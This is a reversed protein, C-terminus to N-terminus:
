RKVSVPPAMRVPLSVTFATREYPKSVVSIRGGHKDVFAKAIALGLGSGGYQLSRSQESRYTREFIRPIENAPIGPGADWITLEISTEKRELEVGLKRGDKGYRIANKILNNLIRIYGYRDVEAICKEDPIQVALDMGHKKLEPLFSIIAERLLEAADLPERRIEVEDADLKAMQFIHDILEKLTQAKASIIAICEEKEQQTDMHEDQLADVYGIISTLPTRIDHSINTLLKKRATESRHAQVQLRDMQEILENISYLLENYTEFENALLRTNINGRVARQVAAADSKLKRMLRLRSHLLLGVTTFLMAFLGWRIIGLPQITIRDMIFLIILGILLTVLMLSHKDHRM